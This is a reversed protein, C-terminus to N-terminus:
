SDKGAKDDKPSSDETKPSVDEAAPQSSNNLEKKDPNTAQKFEKIGKGLAKGVDPLKGPGFILLAIVLIVLLEPVGLSPIFGFM